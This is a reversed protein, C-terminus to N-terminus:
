YFREVALRHCAVKKYTIWDKATDFSSNFYIRQEDRLLVPDHGEIQLGPM